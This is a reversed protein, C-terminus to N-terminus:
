SPSRTCFKSTKSPTDNVSPRVGASVAGGGGFSESPSPKKSGCSAQKATGPTAGFPQGAGTAAGTSVSLSPMTSALSGQGVSASSPACGAGASPQGFLSASSSPTSKGSSLHGVSFPTAGSPQTCSLSASPMRSSTSLHGSWGSVLFPKSSLSPQGSSSGLSTALNAPTILPM